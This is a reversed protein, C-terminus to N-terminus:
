AQKGAEGAKEHIPIMMRMREALTVKRELIAIAEEVGPDLLGGSIFDTRVWRGALGHKEWAYNCDDLIVFSEVHVPCHGLWSKIERARRGYEIYETKDYITLGYEGLVSSLVRGDVDMNEPEKDWGGRWSSSLVIKAGSAQVIKVLRKVAERDIPNDWLDERHEICYPESNLVGDVDLFLVKM